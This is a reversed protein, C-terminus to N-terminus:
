RGADPRRGGTGRRDAVVLRSVEDESRNRLAIAIWEGTADASGDSLLISSDGTDTGDENDAADNEAEAETGSAEDTASPASSADAEGEGTTVIDGPASPEELTLRNGAAQYRELYPTIDLVPRLDDIAVADLAHAQQAVLVPLLLPALLIALSVAAGTARRRM